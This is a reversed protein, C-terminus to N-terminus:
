NALRMEISYYRFKKQVTTNVTHVIVYCNKMFDVFLDKKKAM